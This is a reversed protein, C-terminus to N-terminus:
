AKPGQFSVAGAKKMAEVAASPRMLVTIKTARVHGPGMAALAFAAVSTEDPAEVILAGDYEGFQYYLADFKCGLKEALGKVAATRDEPNKTFQTWAAPTYAFQVMYLTM